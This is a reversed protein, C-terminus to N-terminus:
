PMALLGFARPARAAVVFDRVVFDRVVFGRLGSALCAWAFVRFVAVAVALLAPLLLAAPLLGAVLLGTALLGTALFFTALVFAVFFGTTVVDVALFAAAPVPAAAGRVLGDAAAAVDRPPVRGWPALAALVAGLADAEFAVAGL